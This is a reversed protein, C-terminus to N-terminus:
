NFGDFVNKKNRQYEIFVNEKFNKKYFASKRHYQTQSNLTFHSSKDMFSYKEKKPLDM